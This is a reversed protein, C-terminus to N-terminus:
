IPALRPGALPRRCVHPILWWAHQIAKVARELCRTGPTAGLRDALTALTERVDGLNGRVRSDFTARMEAAFADPELELIGAIEQSAADREARTGGPILTGFLDFLVVTILRGGEM